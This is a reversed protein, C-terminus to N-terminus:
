ERLYRSTNMIFVTTINKAFPHLLPISQAHLAVQQFEKM